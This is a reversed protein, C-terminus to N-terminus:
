PRAGASIRAVGVGRMGQGVDEVLLAVARAAGGEHSAPKGAVLACGLEVAVERPMQREELQPTAGGLARECDVVVADPRAHRAGGGEAGEGVGRGEEPAAM